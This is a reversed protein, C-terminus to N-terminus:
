HVIIIKKTKSKIGNKYIYYLYMGANWNSTQVKKTKARLIDDFIVNGLLNKIILRDGSGVNVFEIFDSAPNPNISIDMSSLANVDTNFDEGFSTIKINDFYFGDGNVYQDSNMVFKIYISDGAYDSVDLNVATWAEQTGDFIPEGMLQNESGSVTKEGCLAKFNIKDKSALVAAWDYSKEIDWKAQFSLFVNEKKPIFIKNGFLLENKLNAPYDGAPSDTLSFGPSVFYKNTINWNGGTTNWEDVNNCNSINQEEIIVFTKVITDVIDILGNNYKIEFSFPTNGVVGDELKVPINNVKTKYSELKLSESYELVDSNISKISLDFSKESSGYYTIELTLSDKKGSFLDSSIEEINIFPEAVAAAKLNLFVNEKCQSIIVNKPPWFGALGVEPTFAFVGKEGYMWDDSDGNATYGVTQIALGSTYNNESTLLKGIKIFATSDKTEKPIYGWPHILLNSFTHFNLAIKFDYNDCFYKVAKTEEESFGSEGRYTQSTKVSSSGQNDYGWEYGYNRNLDVGYVDDGLERRNKRWAGGGNPNQEQNYIYGDPNVCPIFYMERNNVLYTVMEDKGHNELLYWMYFIMQMMSVPERAHHLATYLVKPEDEDLDPNDSIKFWYLPRGEQTLFTDIVQRKTILKPFLLKMSDLSALM